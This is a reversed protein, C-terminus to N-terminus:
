RDRIGLLLELIIQKLKNEKDETTTHTPRTNLEPFMNISLDTM